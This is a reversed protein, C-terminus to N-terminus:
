DTMYDQSDVGDQVPSKCLQLLRPKLTELRETLWASDAAKGGLVMLHGTVRDGVVYPGDIGREVLGLLFELVSADQPGGAPLDSTRPSAPPTGPCPREEPM